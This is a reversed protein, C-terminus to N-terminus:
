TMSISLRLASSSNHKYNVRSTSENEAEFLTWVLYIDTYPVTISIHCLLSINMNYYDWSDDETIGRHNVKAQRKWHSSSFSELFHQVMGLM